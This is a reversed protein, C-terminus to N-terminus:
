KGKRRREAPLKRRMPLGHMKRWNNTLTRMSTPKQGATMVSLIGAEIGEITYGSLEIIEAIQNVAIAEDLSMTPMKELVAAIEPDTKPAPEQQYKPLYARTERAEEARQKIDEMIPELLKHDDGKILRILKDFFRM